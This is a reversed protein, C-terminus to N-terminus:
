GPRSCFRWCSRGPSASWNGYSQTSPLTSIMSTPARRSFWTGRRSAHWLPSSQSRRPKSGTKRLFVFGRGPRLRATGGHHLSTLLRGNADKAPSPKGELQPNAGHMVFVNDLTQAFVYGEGLDFRMRHGASRFQDLAQARTLRHDAVQGELSQALGVTLDVVARLKDVRDDIMRQRLVSAAVGLSAVLALASLAMLLALKTRLRLRSLLNM